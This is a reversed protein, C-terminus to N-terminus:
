SQINTMKAIAAYPHIWPNRELNVGKGIILYDCRLGRRDQGKSLFTAKAKDHRFEQNRKSAKFEHGKSEAVKCVNSMTQMAEARTGCIVIVNLGIMLSREIDDILADDM